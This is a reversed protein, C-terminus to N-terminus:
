FEALIKCVKVRWLMQLIVSMYCSQGTNPIGIKDIKSYLYTTVNRQSAYSNKIERQIKQESLTLSNFDKLNGVTTPLIPILSPTDGVPKGIESINTITPINSLTPLQQMRKIYKFTLEIEDIIGAPICNSTDVETMYRNINPTHIYKQKLNVYTSNIQATTGNTNWADYMLNYTKSYGYLERVRLDEIKTIINNEIIIKFEKFKTFAKVFADALRKPNPLITDVFAFDPAKTMAIHWKVFLDDIVENRVFEKKPKKNTGQSELGETDIKRKEGIALNAINANFGNDEEGM